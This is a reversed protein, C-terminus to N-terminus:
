WISGDIYFMKVMMMEGLGYAITRLLVRLTEM